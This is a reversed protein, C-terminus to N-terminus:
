SYLSWEKVARSRIPDSIATFSQIYSIYSAPFGAERAGVLLHNQYWKYPKLSDDITLATYTTASLKKDFDNVLTVKKEGYGSGLGEIKDLLRKHHPDISYVVGLLYDKPNGTYYADGKGSGDQGCKHFRLSHGYLKYVGLRNQITIRQRLRDNSMNSGFAFYLM